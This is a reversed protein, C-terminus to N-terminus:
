RASSGGGNSALIMSACCRRWRRGVCFIATGVLALSAYPSVSHRPPSSYPARCSSTGEDFAVWRVGGVSRWEDFAVLPQWQGYLRHNTHLRAQSATEKATERASSSLLVPARTDCPRALPAVQWHCRHHSRTSPYAYRLRLRGPIAGWAVIGGLRAGGSVPLRADLRQSPSLAFLFRLPHCSILLNGCCAGVSRLAM